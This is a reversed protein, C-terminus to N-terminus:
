IKGLEKMIKNYHDSKISPEICNLLCSDMTADNDETFEEECAERILAFVKKINREHFESQIFANGFIWRLILIQFKTLPKM